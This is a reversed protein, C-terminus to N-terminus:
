FNLTLQVGFRADKSEGRIKELGKAVFLNANFDPMHEVQGWLRVGAGISSMTESDPVGAGVDRAAWVKGWDYFIHPQIAAKETLWHTLRPEITFAFGNDSQIIGPEYGRGFQTGGLSFQNYSSLLSDAFQASLATFLSFKSFLQQNRSVYANFKFYKAPALPNSAGEAKDTAGWVNLGSTFSPIVQTVGGIEDAFDFNINATLNRLRDTTFRGSLVDSSSDRIELALGASLNMDRSRIFPYSLGLNFTDSRTKYDFTRAFETNQEPSYSYAYSANLLLGCSFQYSQAAQLSHYEQYNAAQSYALTTKAGILPLTSFGFSANFMHPGASDTGTNGWGLTGDLIKSEVTLVLISAGREQGERFRSAVKVGAVDQALLMEREFDKHRLPRQQLLKKEARSFYARFRAAFKEEGEYEISSIYGEVAVLRVEAKLPELEQAPLMVRSLLFGQDRYKKTMEAAISNVADFTVETGFLSRYPALLEQEKFVTSSEVRLSALTFRLSQDYVPQGAEETVRLGPQSRPAPPAQRQRDLIDISPNRPADFPQAFAPLPQFGLWALFLIVSFPSLGALAKHFIAPM